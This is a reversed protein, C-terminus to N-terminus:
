GENSKEEPDQWRLHMLKFRLDSSTNKDDGIVRVMKDFMKTLRKVDYELEANKVMLNTINVDQNVEREQYKKIARKILKIM